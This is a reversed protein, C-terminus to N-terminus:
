QQQNSDLNFHWTIGFKDTISGFLKTWFTEGLEMEVKGGDDKIRNFYKTLKDSIGTGSVMVSINNGATFPMGPPVDSFMIIGDNIKLTAHAVLDKTEETVPFDPDPPMQGFTMIEAKETEFVKQYYNIAQLCNGQFNIYANVPM